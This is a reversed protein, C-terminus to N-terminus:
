VGNEKDVENALDTLETELDTDVKYVIDFIENTLFFNEMFMARSYDDFICFNKYWERDVSYAFPRYIKGTTFGPCRKVCRFAIDSRGYKFRNLRSLISRKREVFM